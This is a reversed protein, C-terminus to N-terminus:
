KGPEVDKLLYSLRPPYTITLLRSDQHDAGPVTNIEIRLYDAPLQKKVVEAWEVVVVVNPRGVLEGLEHEMIGAEPLRYFDFHHIELGGAQYQKSITFTPSAVHDSSGAGRALGRVMTTKGGGLDSVLEIVEGGRLQKGIKAALEESQKANNTQFQKQIM